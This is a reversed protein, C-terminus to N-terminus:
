GNLMDLSGCPQNEYIERLAKGVNGYAAYRVRKNEAPFPVIKIKKAILLGAIISDDVITPEEPPKKKIM